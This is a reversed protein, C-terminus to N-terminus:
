VFSLWYMIIALSFQVPILWSKRRGFSSFFAGDVLPAWILKLSFPWFVFSFFFQELLKKRSLVEGSSPRITTPFAGLKCFCPFVALLASHFVKFFTFFFFSCFQAGMKVSSKATASPNRRRTRNQKSTWEWLRKYLSFSSSQIYLFWTIRIKKIMFTWFGIESKRDLRSLLRDRRGM